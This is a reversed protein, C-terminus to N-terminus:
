NLLFFLQPPPTLVDEILNNLKDASTCLSLLTPENIPRVQNLTCVEETFVGFLIIRFSSSQLEGKKNNSFHSAFLEELINEKHDYYCIFYISDGIIKRDEVDYMKGNFRFEKNKKVWIFDYKNKKLDTLDFVLTSLEESKIEKKEISYQVIEKILVKAPIFLFLYGFSIYVFVLTILLCFIRSHKKHRM